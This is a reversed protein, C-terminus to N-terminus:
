EQPATLAEQALQAAVAQEEMMRANEDQWNKQVLMQFAQFKTFCVEICEHEPKELSQHSCACMNSPPSPSPPPPATPLPCPLVVVSDFCGSLAPHRPEAPLCPCLPLVAHNRARVFRCTHQAAGALSVWRHVVRLLQAARRCGGICQAAVCGPSGAGCPVPQSM